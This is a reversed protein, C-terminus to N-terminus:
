IRKIRDVSPEYIEGEERLRDLVQDIVPPEAPIAKLLEEYSAGNGTDLKEIMALVQERLADLEDEENDEEEVGPPEYGMDRYEPILYMLSTKLMDMYLEVNIKDYLQIATLVGDAVRRSFGLNILKDVTPEEMGLAERMADIRVKLKRAADLMWYDRLVEEVVKVQEPVVSVYMTGERPSYVNAKGVVAVFQPAEMTELLQRAKPRYKGAFLYFAGTHDAVRATIVEDNVRRVETLVGVIFLRSIKAGLPTVVYSPMKREEAKIYKRSANYEAAYVRWAPERGM